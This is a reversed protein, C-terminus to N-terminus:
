MYFARGSFYKMFHQQMSCCAQKPSEFVDESYVSNDNIDGGLGLINGGRIKDDVEESEDDGTIENASVGDGDETTYEYEM